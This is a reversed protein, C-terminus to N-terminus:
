SAWSKAALYLWILSWWLLSSREFRWSRGLCFRGEGGARAGRLPLWAPVRSRYEQYAGGFVRVLFKEEHRVLLVYYLAVFAWVGWASALSRPGLAATLVGLGNLLNGVYLPNRVWAYPGASILVPADLQGRRTPEGAYGVAWVRIAEGLLGLCFGQSFSGWTPAAQSLAVLALVAMVAGRLRFCLEGLREGFDLSSADGENLNASSNSPLANPQERNDWSEM